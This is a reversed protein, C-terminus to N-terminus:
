RILKGQADYINGDKQLYLVGDILFKRVKGNTTTIEGDELSTTVKNPKVHLAFRAENTGANLDVTYEDLMLNTRINTEYDILEVVIGDTGDPMAFTYEGATAIQVGVPIVTNAIPLSNGAVQILEEGALTYINNGANMMKSLDLNMDFAETAGEEQLTILTQDNYTGNQSLELRLSHTKEEDANRKAALGQPQSLTWEAAWNITGAYQVMYSHLSKFTVEKDKAYTPTYTDNKQDRTYFYLLNDQTLTQQKDSFSPVGIIHWNSDHKDRNDREITCTYPALEVTTEIINGDIQTTIPSMSPFYLSVKDTNTFIGMNAINLALALVYGQNAKLIGCNLSETNARGQVSTTDTIYRWYTPSDIWAGNKAREAGDYYEMIWHVGYEGFGFVDSIRVDFPFSVWYYLKESQTGSGEIHDQTFSMVAYVTYGNETDAAKIANSVQQADEQNTREILVDINTTADTSNNTPILYVTTENIKFDYRVRVSYGTGEGELMPMGDTQYTNELLTQSKGNYNATIATIKDGPAINALDTRYIWNGADDLKVPNATNKTITINNETAGDIYARKVENTVMNWQWRVNANAPLNSTGQGIIEDGALEKSINTGYDNAVVFKVNPSDKSINVWRCFYHSFDSHKKAYSSFTMYNAPISYNIWGGETNSTRIYYNGEYPKLHEEDLLLTASGETKKVTFNWVGSGYDHEESDAVAKIVELGDHVQLEVTNRRGPLLAASADSFLYNYVMHYEVEEWQAVGGVDYGTCRQLIVAANNTGNVGGARKNYLHLSVIAEEGTSTLKVIDSPHSKDFIIEGYEVTQEVYLIRYDDAIAPLTEWVGTFLSGSKGNLRYCNVSNFPIQYNLDVTKINIVGGSTRKEFRITNYGAPIECRYCFHPVQEVYVTALETMKIAAGQGSGTRSHFAYAYHETAANNVWDGGNNPVALYVVHTGTTKYNDDLITNCDITLSTNNASVETQTGGQNMMLNDNYAENHPTAFLQITAGIPVQYVISESAPSTYTQGNLTFGYNGFESSNLTVDYTPESFKYSWKGTAGSGENGNGGWQGEDITFYNEGSYLSMGNTQDWRNDWNNATTSGNMRGFIVNDYNQDSPYQCYYVGDENTITMDVWTNKNGDSSVYFYAAFRAGGTKWNGNPKLYVKSMDLMTKSDKPVTLNSTRNWVNGDSNTNNAGNMRVFQFGTCDSPIEASYYENNCDIATMSAWSNQSNNWYYVAFRASAQKWAANPKLYVTTTKAKEFNATVTGTQTAKITTSAANANTITIGDTATWNKFVYGIKSTATISVATHQGVSASSKDVTGFTNNNSKITIAHKIEAWQAYLNVTGNNTTTLNIVSAQDAHKTGNGAANTNWGNFSYGINTFANATLNQSTGYIFAQDAMSGTGGNANFKVTYKNPTYIAYVTNTTAVTHTYTANTSLTTGTGDSKTNWEKFTYGASASQTFTVTKGSQVKTGSSFSTNSYKATVSSGGTGKDFTVAYATPFTVYVYKNSPYNVRFEYEGLADPIFKLEHQSGSYVQKQSNSASRNFTIYYGEGTGYGYKDNDSNSTAVKFGYYSAPLHKIDLTIYVNSETSHGSKKTMAKGNSYTYDDGFPSNTQNDGILKWNSSLDEEFNAKVTGTATATITTTANNANAIAVGGTITWNKFKYGTNATAKITVSTSGVQQSGTPSVTGNAGESITVAYTKEFRATITKAGTAQYTYTTSTSKQTNGDYWGIFTYGSKINAVSYTVTATRAASCTASSQGSAITGSNSTTTNRGDLKNATVKLTAISATSTAFTSGNDTSLYQQITQTYNLSNYQTSSNGLSTRTLTCNNNTSAGYCLYSYGSTLGNNNDSATYHTAYTKLNSESCDQSGWAAENCMVRWGWIDGWNTGNPDAVYYLNNTGSIKNMTTCGIHDKNKYQHAVLEFVGSWNTNTNDFYVYGGSFTIGWANSVGMLLIVSIIVSKLLNHKM